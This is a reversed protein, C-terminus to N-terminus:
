RAKPFTPVPKGSFLATFCIVRAIALDPLAFNSPISYFLRLDFVCLLTWSLSQSHDRHPRGLCPALAPAANEHLGIGPM